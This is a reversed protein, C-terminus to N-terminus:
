AVRTTTQSPSLVMECDTYLSISVWRHMRKGIMNRTYRSRQTHSLVILVWVRAIIYFCTASVWLSCALRDLDLPLQSNGIAFWCHPMASWKYYVSLHSGTYSSLMCTQLIVRGRCSAHQMTMSCFLFNQFFLVASFWTWFQLTCAPSMHTFKGPSHQVSSMLLDSRGFSFWCAFSVICFAICTRLTSVCTPATSTAVRWVNVDPSFVSELLKVLAFFVHVPGRYKVFCPKCKFQLGCVCWACCISTLLVCSLVLNCFM